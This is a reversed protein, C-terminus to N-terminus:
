NPRSSVLFRLFKKKPIEKLYSALVAIHEEELDKLDGADFIGIGELYSTKQDYCKEIFMRPNNIITWAEHFLDSLEEAKRKKNITYRTEGTPPEEKKPTRNAITQFDEDIECSHRLCINKSIKASFNGDRSACVIKFTCVRDVEVTNTNNHYCVFKARNTSSKILKHMKTGNNHPYVEEDFATVMESIKDFCDSGTIDGREILAGKVLHQEMAAM